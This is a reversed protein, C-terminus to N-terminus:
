RVFVETLYIEKPDTSVVIGLGIQSYDGLINQAHSGSSAMMAEHIRAIQDAADSINYSSFGINESVIEYPVEYLEAMKSFREEFTSTDSGRHSTWPVPVNPHDDQYKEKDTYKYTNYLDLSHRRAIESLKDSIVFETKTNEVRSQNLLTFLVTEYPNNASFEHLFQYVIKSAEARTINQDPKFTGDEYGGLYGLEKASYVYKYFWDDEKVDSFAGEAPATIDDITKYAATLLIKTFEARTVPREPKFSGDEYGSVVGLNFATEIYALLSSDEEVDPFSATDVDQLKRATAGLLIKVAQARTLKDEPGFNDDGYGSIIKKSSLFEIYEQAWYGDAVDDFASVQPIPVVVFGICIISVLILYKSKMM